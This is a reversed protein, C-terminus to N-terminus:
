QEKKLPLDPSLFYRLPCINSGGGNFVPVFQGYFDVVIGSFYEVWWAPVFFWTEVLPLGCSIGGGNYWQDFTSSFKSTVCENVPWLYRRLNVGLINTRPLDLGPVSCDIMIGVSATTRKLYCSLTRWAFCSSCSWTCHNFGSEAVFVKIVLSLGKSCIPSEM